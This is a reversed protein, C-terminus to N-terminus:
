RPADMGAGNNPWIRSWYQVEVDEAPPLQSGRLVVGGIDRPQKWDAQLIEGPAITKSTGPNRDVIEPAFVAVADQSALFWSHGFEAVNVNKNPDFGSASTLAGLLLAACLVSTIPSARLQHHHRRHLKIFENEELAEIVQIFETSKLDRELRYRIHWKLVFALDRRAGPPM